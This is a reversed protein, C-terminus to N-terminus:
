AAGRIPWQTNVDSADKGTREFYDRLSEQQERYLVAQRDMLEDVTLEALGPNARGIIWALRAAALADADASHANGLEVGYHQCTVGLNRKGPRFKDVAKDLVYADVIPGPTLPPYGLRIGEANILTFDFSANYAAIIRGQMWAAEIADRIEKYGDRYDQGDNRAKETTIGHIDSAGTPIDIEPDVLWNRTDKEAGDITIFCATVIRASTPTPSTTELDFAALPNTTWTM